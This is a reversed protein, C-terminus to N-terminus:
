SRKRQDDNARLMEIIPEYDKMGVPELALDKGDSLKDFAAKDKKPFDLLAQRIKAKLDDPLSALVAVPGEPLFDTKFIVRFDSKQMAKGDATKVIGKAILATCKM